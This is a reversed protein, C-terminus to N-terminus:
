RMDVGFVRELESLQNKANNIGLDFMKTNNIKNQDILEQMRQNPNKYDTVIEFGPAGSMQNSTQSFFPDNFIENAQKEKEMFEQDTIPTAQGGQIQINNTIAPLGAGAQYGSGPTRRFKDQARRMDYENMERLLDKQQQSMVKFGPPSQPMGYRSTTTVPISSGEPISISSLTEMNNRITNAKDLETMQYEEIDKIGQIRPHSSMKPYKSTDKAIEQEVSTLKDFGKVLADKAKTANNTFQDYLGKAIGLLGINGTAVREGIGSAISKIGYGIDGMIETPTPGYKNALQMAKDALTTRVYQGFTPSSPDTDFVPKSAQYLNTTGEAVNLTNKFDQYEQAQKLRRDLRDDSIDQRGKFYEKRTMERNLDRLIDQKGVQARTAGAQGGSFPNVKNTPERGPPAM